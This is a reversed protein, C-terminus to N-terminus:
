LIRRPVRTTRSRPPWPWSLQWCFSTRFRRPVLVDGWTNLAPSGAPWAGWYVPLRAFVAVTLFAELAAVLYRPLLVCVQVIAYLIGRPRYSRVRQVLYPAHLELVSGIILPTSAALGCTRQSSTPALGFAPLCTEGTELMM